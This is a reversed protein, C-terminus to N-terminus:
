QKPKVQFNSAPTCTSQGRYRTADSNPDRQVYISHMTYCSASDKMRMNFQQAVQNPSIALSDIRLQDPSLMTLPQKVYPAAEDTQKQDDACFATGCFCFAVLIAYTVSRM